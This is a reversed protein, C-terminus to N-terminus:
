VCAIRPTRSRSQVRAKRSSVSPQTSVTSYFRRKSARRAACLSEPRSCACRPPRRRRRDPPSLRCWRITRRSPAHSTANAQTRPVISQGGFEPVPGIVNAQLNASLAPLANARTQQLVSQARLIGAAAQRITPNNTVARRIAEDFTVREIPADTQAAAPAASIAELVIVILFFLSVSACLLGTLDKKGRHRQTERIRRTEQSRM